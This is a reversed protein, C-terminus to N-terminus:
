TDLASGGTIWLKTVHRVRKEKFHTLPRHLNPGLIERLFLGM